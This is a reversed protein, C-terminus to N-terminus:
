RKLVNCVFKCLFLSTIITLFPLTCKIVIMNNLNFIPYLQKLVDRVIPHIIYIGFSYNKGIKELVRVPFKEVPPNPFKLCYSFCAVMFPINAVFLQSAETFIGEFINLGLCGMIIILLKEKSIERLKDQNIRIYGGLVFCPLGLLIFNSCWYWPISYELFFPAIEGIFVNIGLLIPVVIVSNKWNSREGIFYAVIYCYILAVLFWSVDGIMTKQFILFEITNKLTFKEGFWVSIGGISRTRIFYEIFYRLLYLLETGLFLKFIHKVKRPIKEKIVDKNDDYVYYGSIAFFLPVAFRCMCQILRGLVTPLECHLLVVCICAIGKLVDLMRNQRKEDKGMKEGIVIIKLLKVIRLHKQHKQM